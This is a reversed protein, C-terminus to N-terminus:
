SKLMKMKIDLVKGFPKLWGWLKKPTIDYNEIFRLILRYAFNKAESKIESYDNKDLTKVRIIFSNLINEIQELPLNEQLYWLPGVTNSNMKLYSIALHAILDDNTKNYGTDDLLEIALRISSEDGLQFLSTYISPWDIFQEQIALSEGASKRIAFEIKSDNILNTLIQIFDNPLQYGKLLM